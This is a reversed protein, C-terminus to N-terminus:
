IQTALYTQKNTTEDYKPVIVDYSFNYKGKLNPHEAWKGKMGIDKLIINSNSNVVKKFKRRGNIHLFTIYTRYKEVQLSVSPIIM